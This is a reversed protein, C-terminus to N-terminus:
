DMKSLLLRKQTDVCLWRLVSKARNPKNAYLENCASSVSTFIFHIAIITIWSITSFPLLWKHLRKGDGAASLNAVIPFRILNPLGFDQVIRDGSGAGFPLHWVGDVEFFSM